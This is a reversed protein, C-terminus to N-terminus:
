KGALSKIIEAFVDVVIGNGAQKYLQTKSNVKEALDYYKSDIGMLNWCERPTLKRIRVDIAEAEEGSRVIIKIPSYGGDTKGHSNSMVTPSLGNVGHVRGSQEHASDLMGVVETRPKKEVTLIATKFGDPRTTLTPSVGSNDVTQNYANITDGDECDNNRATDIAQRFFRFQGDKEDKIIKLNNQASNNGDLDLSVQELVIKPDKYDRACITPSLQRFGLRAFERSTLGYGILPEAIFNDVERSGARTSVTFGIENETDIHVSQSFREARNFGGTETNTFSALARDSLYYSDDVKEELYDKLRKTLPFPKPFEFYYDGLISVMFVRSRTQAVGFDKANMVDTYNSYGLSELELQIENFQRIFKTEVLDVVNEMILVKPMTDAEKAERLIRLIQYALGSRTESSMGKRDGAKSLDTCPFSWTFVTINPLDKGHIKTIDGFNKTEGHMAMYSKIAFQDIESIGVVECKVDAREFGMRQCGIGAFAEFVTPNHPLVYRDKTYEFINM